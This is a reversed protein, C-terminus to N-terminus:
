SNSNKNYTEPQPMFANEIASKYTNIESADMRALGELAGIIENVEEQSMDELKNIISDRLPISGLTENVAIKLNDRNNHDKNKITHHKLVNVLQLVEKETFYGKWTEM